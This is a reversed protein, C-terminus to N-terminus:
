KAPYIECVKCKRRRLKVQHTALPYDSRKFSDTGNIMRIQTFVIFHECNGQNCYLYKEGISLSLDLFTYADMSRETYGPDKGKRRLWDIIPSAYSISNNDRMDNYFIGNIFFFASKRYEGDLIKDKLCYLKDRLETLRQSGLVIFDQTKLSKAPHYFSLSILVENKDVTDDDRIPELVDDENTAPEATNNNEPALTPATSTTPTENLDVQIAELEPDLVELSLAEVMSAKFQAVSIISTQTFELPTIKSRNQLRQSINAKLGIYSTSPFKANNHSSTGRFSFFTSALGSGYSFILIRKNNLDAEASLLSLLGAYVSGSYCNGLEKSLLTSPATKALYEPESLKLSAAELKPNIYSDKGLGVTSAYEEYAARHAECPTRTYDHYVLRAFAKQVLRNYPSHFIAYDVNALSFQGSNRAEQATKYLRYCNDLSRIYCEISLKGDVLPYESRLDPKYFDYVHEMHTGRVGREMVLPADPGILMAVVGAGGTPRAPGAAYVAIDGTVVLAYRGDWYSSEIWQVSNFLANTGGYCANVTDVGEINYNGCDAFLSMLTSKVSKSKDILTETGVELRGITRYDVDYKQMLMTVANMAMSAIDERDGTFAMNTQGLGKTYKGESVGDHIELDIQSVYTNPFYIDMALIGINKPPPQLTDSM